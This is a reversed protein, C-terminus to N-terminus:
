KNIIIKKKDNTVSVIPGRGSIGIKFNGSHKAMIGISINQAQAAQPLPV